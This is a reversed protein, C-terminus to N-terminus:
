ALIRMPSRQRGVPQRDALDQNPQQLLEAGLQERTGLAVLAEAVNPERVHV